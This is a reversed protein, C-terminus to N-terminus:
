LPRLPRVLLNPIVPCAEPWARRRGAHPLLLGLECNQLVVGRSGRAPHQGPRIPVLILLGGRVVACGVSVMGCRSHRVTTEAHWPWGRRQTSSKSVRWGALREESQCLLPRTSRCSCDKLPQFSDKGSGPIGLSSTEIIPLITPPQLHNCECCRRGICWRLLFRWWRCPFKRRSSWRPPRQAAFTLSAAM